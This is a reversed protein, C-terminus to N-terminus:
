MDFPLDEDAEVSVGDITTMEQKEPKEGEWAPLDAAQAPNIWHKVKLYGNEDETFNAAGMAGVWTLLDFNGDGIEPFADFFQTANRNFHENKVLYNRVKAGSKNPMVTIVIMPLGSSKSVSETAEVIVCRKKGLRDTNKSEDRTYGWDSM